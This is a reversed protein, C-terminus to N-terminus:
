AFTDGGSYNVTITDGAFGVSLGSFTSASLSVDTIAVSGITFRMEWSNLTDPFTKFSYYEDISLSNSSFDANIGEIIDLLQFEIEPDTIVTDPQPGAGTPVHLNAPDFYNTTGFGGFNVEGHVNAGILDASASMPALLLIALFPVLYIAHTRKLM